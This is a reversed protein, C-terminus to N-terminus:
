RKPIGDRLVKTVGNKTESIKTGYYQEDNFEVTIQDDDKQEKDWKEFEERKCFAVNTVEMKHQEVYVKKIQNLIGDFFSHTLENNFDFNLVAYAIENKSEVKLYLTLYGIM